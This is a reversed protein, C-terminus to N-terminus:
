LLSGPGTGPGAVKALSMFVMQLCQPASSETGSSRAPLNTLHELHPSGNRTFGADPEDEGDPGAGAPEGIGALGEQLSIIEPERSDRKWTFVPVEEGATPSSM